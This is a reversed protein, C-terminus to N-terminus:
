KKSKGGTAVTSKRPASMPRPSRYSEGELTLRYAGHRLRDLTRGSVAVEIKEEAVQIERLLGRALGAATDGLPTLCVGTTLREFLKGGYRAQLRKITRNLAPQTIALRDAAALIKGAEVVALFKVLDDRKDFM